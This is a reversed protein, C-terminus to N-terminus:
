HREEAPACLRVRWAVGSGNQLRVEDVLRVAGSARSWAERGEASEWLSVVFLGGPNLFSSYRRLIDGPKAFYYLVENFIIRDFRRDPVYAAVDAAVFIADDGAAERGQRAAAESLDVGIYSACGARALWPRLVGSGCGLDLASAPSSPGACYGSIVAYRSMEPLSGLYTWRGSAYEGDLLDASSALVKAGGRLRRLRVVAAPALSKLIRSGLSIAESAAAAM